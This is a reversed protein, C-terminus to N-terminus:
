LVDIMTNWKNLVRFHQKTVVTKNQFHSKAGGRGRDSDLSCSQVEDGDKTTTHLNRAGDQQRQHVTEEVRQDIRGSTVRVCQEFGLHISM